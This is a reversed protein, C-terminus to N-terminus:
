KIEGRELQHAAALEASTHMICPNRFFALTKEIIKPQTIIARYV